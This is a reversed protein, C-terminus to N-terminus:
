THSLSDVTLSQIICPKSCMMHVIMIGLLFKGAINGFLMRVVIPTEKTKSKEALVQLASQFATLFKGDPPGLSMIDSIAVLPSFAHCTLETWAKLMIDHVYYLQVSVM